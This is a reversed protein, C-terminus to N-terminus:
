PSLDYPMFVTATRNPSFFAAKVAAKKKRKATHREAKGGMKPMTETHNMGRTRIVSTPNTQHEIDNIILGRRSFALFILFVTSNRNM